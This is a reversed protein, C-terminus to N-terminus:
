ALDVGQAKAVSWLRARVLAELEGLKKKGETVLRRNSTFNYSYRADVGHFEIRVLYESNSDTIMQLLEHFRVVLTQELYISNAALHDQLLKRSDNIEKFRKMESIHHFLSQRIGSPAQLIRERRAPEIEINILYRELEEQDLGEINEVISACTMESQEFARHLLGWTDSLAPFERDYLQKARHIERDISSQVHRIIKEQEHELKKLTQAFKSDLWKEGFKKCLLVAVLSSGGATALMSYIFETFGMFQM